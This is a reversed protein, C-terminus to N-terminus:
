CVQTASKLGPVPNKLLRQDIQLYKLKLKKLFRKEVFRLKIQM